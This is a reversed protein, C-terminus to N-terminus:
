LEFDGPQASPRKLATWRERNANFRFGFAWGSLHSNPYESSGGHFAPFEIQAKRGGSIPILPSRERHRTVSVPNGM